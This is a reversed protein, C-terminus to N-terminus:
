NNNFRSSKIAIVGGEGIITILVKDREGGGGVGGDKSWILLLTRRRTM